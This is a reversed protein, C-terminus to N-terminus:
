RVLTSQMFRSESSLGIRNTSSRSSKTAVFTCMKFTIKVHNKVHESSVHLENTRFDPFAQLLPSSGRAGNTSVFALTAPMGVGRRPLGIFIRNKHHVLGM